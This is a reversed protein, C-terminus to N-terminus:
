ASRLALPKTALGLPREAFAPEAAVEFCTNSTADGLEVDVYQQIDRVSPGEWLCVVRSSDAAPYFQLVSVGQPADAAVELRAGREFAHEPDLIEHIAIVYM